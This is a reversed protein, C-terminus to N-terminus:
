FAAIRQNLIDLYGAMLDAQEELLRMQEAPLDRSKPNMVMFGELRDLRGKLQDREEIVRQQWDEM